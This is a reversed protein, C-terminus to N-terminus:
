FQRNNWSLKSKRTVSKQLLQQKNYRSFITASEGIQRQQSFSSLVNGGLEQKVMKLQIKNEIQGHRIAASELLCQSM